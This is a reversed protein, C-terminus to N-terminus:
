RLQIILAEFLNSREESPFRVVCMDYLTVEIQCNIMKGAEIFATGFLNKTPDQSVPPIGVALSCGPTNVDPTVVILPLDLVRKRRVSVVYAELAFRALAILCGPYSFLKADPAGEPIITHLFPGASEIARMEIIDHVAKLIASHQLKALEIGEILVDTKTWSLSDLAKMFKEKPSLEKNPSELLAKVGYVVDSAVFKYKFGHSAEFTDDIIKSLGYKETLDSVWEQIHKRLELDMCAFKQKSQRLPIGLEALFELLRKYGRLHWVRFQCSVHMTHKLSDHLNWHRYLLLQLDKKHTVSICSRRGAPANFIDDIPTAERFLNVNSKLDGLRKVHSKLQGLYGKFTNRDIRGTLRLDYIGVIALWLLENSDKGLKRALNFFTWAVSEGYYNFEHYESLIKLRKENWTRREQRKELQELTMGAISQSGEDDDEDDSDRFLDEYSPIEGADDNKMLLRVQNGRYANYVDVPRHSDAIFFVQEDEPELLEVIDLTAGINILLIYKVSARHATYTVFLDEADLIPVITFLINDSRFLSSLLKAACTADVDYNVLVLIRQGYLLEYFEKGLDQIFM